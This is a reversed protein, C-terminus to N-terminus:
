FTKSDIKNQILYVPRNKSNDFSRTIYGATISVALLLINTSFIQLFIITLYGPINVLGLTWAIFSVIALLTLCIVSFASFIQMIRIPLDTFGYFSDFFLKVKRSLKWKSKGQIRQLRDFYVYTRKFGIWDIQATINTNKEKLLSLSKRSESSFACVDYGGAPLDPSILKRYLYWYVKAFFRTIFDDKRSKRVGLAVHIDPNSLVEAFESFLEKPEQQDAGFAAVICADANDFGAMLAPGVGFNRSLTIIKWEFYKDSLNNKLESESGDVDGDLVFIVRLKCPLIEGMSKLYQLLGVVEEKSKYLPIVAEFHIKQHDNWELGCRCKNSKIM